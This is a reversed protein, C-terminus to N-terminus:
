GATPLKAQEDVRKVGHMAYNFILVYYREIKSCAQCFFAEKSM